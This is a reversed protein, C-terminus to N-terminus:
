SVTYTSGDESAKSSYYIRIPKFFWHSPKNPKVLVPQQSETKGAQKRGM